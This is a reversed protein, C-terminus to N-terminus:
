RLPAPQREALAQEAELDEAKRGGGEARQAETANVVATEVGVATFLSGAITDPTVVSLNVSFRTALNAVVQVTPLDEWRLAGPHSLLVIHANTLTPLEDRIALLDAHEELEVVRREADAVIKGYLYRLLIRLVAAIPVALLLGLVGGLSTGVLLVFIMLLPHLHVIRGILTPIVLNDELQRLVFYTIGVVIALTTHSWGFPPTPDLAAVSVAIAGASWPGIIPILELLGTALALVFAYRIDYIRLAIYTVSSMILVLMVQGRLYAGLTSNIEGLVREAERHYRLPLGRRIGAVLRDGQIFFFFTAILYVFLEIVFHFARQAITVATAPARTTIQNFIDNVQKQLADADLGLRDTLDPFRQDFYDIGAETTQPLQKTLESAQVRVIPVLTVIGVVLGTVIAIYLVLAVLPRPLHTRRAIWGIVPSFIYATVVAWLFPSLLSFFNAVLALVLGTLVWFAILKSRPSFRTEM